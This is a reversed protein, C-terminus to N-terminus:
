HDFENDLVHQLELSRNKTMTTLCITHIQPQISGGEYFSAEFKANTDRYKLWAKQATQLNAKQAPDDIRALLKKYVANLQADAENFEKWAHERMEVTTIIRPTSEARSPAQARTSTSSICIVVALLALTHKRM